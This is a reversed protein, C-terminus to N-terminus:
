DHLEVTAEGPVAPFVGRPFADEAPPSLRTLALVYARAPQGEAALEIIRRDNDGTGALLDALRQRDHGVLPALRECVAFLDAVRRRIEPRRAFDTARGSLLAALTPHTTGLVDALSRLSM